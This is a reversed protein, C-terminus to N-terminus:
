GCVEDFVRLFNEGLIGRIQEDDYGRSVLGRTINPCDRYDDFGILNAISLNHEPRFGMEMMLPMYVAELTERGAQLPWDTGIGVHRWGVLGSVYDIHDLMAEITVGLGPGLFAPIAVIGIVGGTEALARLEEDSKGRDVEYLDAASTHSAVVPRESLKCADLTTQRGSHATDVIIGLEDMRAIVASGFNSVGSDTEETCGGGVTNQMNYTLGIMRAGFDYAAQLQNLKRDVGETDQMSVYGALRGERKARRIDEAKLAKVLWPFADFQAQASAFLGVDDMVVQRNGATIGSGAWCDYFDDFGGTLARRVPLQNSAVYDAWLEGTPATGELSAYTRYGCPGQFLMDIVISKQHLRQARAEEETGLGFDYIGFGEAAVTTAM